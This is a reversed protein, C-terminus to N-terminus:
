RLYMTETAEDYVAQLATNKIIDDIAEDVKREVINNVTTIVENVKVVLKNLCEYYSLSDDYVTPLIHNCFFKVKKMNVGRVM